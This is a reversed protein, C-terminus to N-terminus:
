KGCELKQPNLMQVLSREGDSKFYTVEGTVTFKAGKVCAANEKELEILNVKCPASDAVWYEPPTFIRNEGITGTLTAPGEACWDGDASLAPTAAIAFVFALVTHRM